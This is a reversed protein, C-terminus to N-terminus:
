ISKAYLSYHYGSGGRYAVGSKVKNWDNWNNSLTENNILDDKAGDIFWQLINVANNWDYDYYDNSILIYITVDEIKVDIFMIEGRGVEGNIKIFDPDGEFLTLVDFDENDMEFLDNLYDYQSQTLKNGTMLDDTDIILTKM